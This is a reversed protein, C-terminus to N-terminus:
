GDRRSGQEFFRCPEREKLRLRGRDHYACSSSQSHCAGRGAAFVFGRIPCHETRYSPAISSRLLVNAAARAAMANGTEPANGTAGDAAAGSRHKRVTEGSAGGTHTMGGIGGGRWSTRGGGGRTGAAPMPRAAVPAPIATAPNPDGPAPSPLGLVRTRRIPSRVISPGLAALREAASNDPLLVKNSPETRRRGPSISLFAVLSGRAREPRRASDLM